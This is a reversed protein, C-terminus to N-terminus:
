GEVSYDIRVDTFTAKLLSTGFGSRTPAVVATSCRLRAGRCEDRMLSRQDPRSVVQWGRFGTQRRCPTHQCLHIGLLIAAICPRECAPKVQFAPLRLQRPILDYWM